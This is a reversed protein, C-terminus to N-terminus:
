DQPPKSCARPGCLTHSIAGTANFFFRIRVPKAEFSLYDLLVQDGQPHIDDLMFAKPSETKLRPRWYGSIAEVGVFERGVCQCRLTAWQDYFDLLRQVDRDRCADLWDVITALPDHSVRDHVM